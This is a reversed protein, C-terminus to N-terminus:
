LPREKGGTFAATRLIRPSKSAYLADVVLDRERLVARQNLSGKDTIEGSELSPPRELLVARDIATSSGPNDRNYQELRSEFAESVAEHALVEAFPVNPGAATLERCRLANPFILAAVSDRDPGAIV